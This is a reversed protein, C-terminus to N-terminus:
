LAPLCVNFPNLLYAATAAIAATASTAAMIIPPAAYASQVKADSQSIDAASVGAGDLAADEDEAEPQRYPCDAAFTARFDRLMERALKHRGKAAELAIEAAELQALFHRYQARYYAERADWQDSLNREVAANFAAGAIQMELKADDILAFGDLGLQTM